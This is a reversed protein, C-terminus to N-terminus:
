GALEPKAFAHIENNPTSLAEIERRIAPTITNDRESSDAKSKNAHGVRLRVGLIERLRCEFRPM